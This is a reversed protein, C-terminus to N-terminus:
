KEGRCTYDRTQELRTRIMSPELSREPTEYFLGRFLGKYDHSGKVSVQGMASLGPSRLQTLGGLLIFLWAGATQVHTWLCDCAVTGLATVDGNM